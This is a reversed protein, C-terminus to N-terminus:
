PLYEKENLFATIEKLYDNIRDDQIPLQVRSAWVTIDNTNAYCVTYSLNLQDLYIPSTFTLYRLHSSPERRSAQTSKEQLLCCVESHLRRKDEELTVHFIASPLNSSNIKPM